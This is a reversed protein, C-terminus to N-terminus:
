AINERDLYVPLSIDVDWIISLMDIHIPTDFSRLFWEGQRLKGYDLSRVACMYMNDGLDKDVSKVQVREGNGLRVEQYVVNIQAYQVRAMIIINEPVLEMRYESKKFM